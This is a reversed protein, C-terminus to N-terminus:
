PHPALEVVIPLHDSGTSPGVDHNLVAVDQSVLVHDIPIRLPWFRDPWTPHIGFGARSDQLAMQRLLAQFHHSWPTANLDGAVVLPAPFAAKHGILYSFVVIQRWNEQASTPHPPHGVVVTLRGKPLLAQASILSDVPYKSNVRHITIHKLPFRSYLSTQSDVSQAKYPLNRTLWQNQKLATRWDASVEELTLIDPKLTTIVKLAQAYRTNRTSLNMQVVRLTPASATAPTSEFFVPLVVWGNIVAAMFAVFFLQRDGRTGFYLALLLLLCFYQTRFPAILEFVWHLQGLFGLGTLLFLVWTMLKLLGNM